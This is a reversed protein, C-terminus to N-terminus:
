PCCNYFGKLIHTRFSNKIHNHRIISSIVLIPFHEPKKGFYNCNWQNLKGVQMVLSERFPDAQNRRTTASDNAHIKIRYFEQETNM